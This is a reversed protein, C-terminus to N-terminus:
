RYLTDSDLETAANSPIRYNLVYRPGYPTFQDMQNGLFIDIGELKDVAIRPYVWRPFSQM